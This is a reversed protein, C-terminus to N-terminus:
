CVVRLRVFPPPLSGPSNIRGRTKMDGQSVGEGGRPIEQEQMKGSEKRGARGLGRKM